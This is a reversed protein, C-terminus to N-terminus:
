PRSTEDAEIRSPRNLRTAMSAAWATLDESSLDGGDGREGVPLDGRMTAVTELAEIIKTRVADVDSSAAEQADRMYALTARADELDGSPGAIKAIVMDAAPRSSALHARIDAPPNDDLRGEPWAELRQAAEDPDSMLVNKLAMLELRAEEAIATMRAIEKAAEREREGLARRAEAVDLLITGLHRNWRRSLTLEQKIADVLAPAEADTAALRDVRDSATELLETITAAHLRLEDMTPADVEGGLAPLVPSAAPDAHGLASFNLTLAALASCFIFKCNFVRDLGSIASM